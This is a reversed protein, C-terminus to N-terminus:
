VANTLRKALPELNEIQHRFASADAEDRQRGRPRMVGLAPADHTAAWNGRTDPHTKKKVNLLLENFHQCAFPFDPGPGNAWLAEDVGPRQPTPGGLTAHAKSITALTGCNVAFM